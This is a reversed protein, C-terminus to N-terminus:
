TLVTGVPVKFMGCHCRQFIKMTWTKVNAKPTFWFFVDRWDHADMADHVDKLPPRHGGADNM